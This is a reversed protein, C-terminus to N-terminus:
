KNIGKLIKAVLEDADIVSEDKADNFQMGLVTQAPKLRWKTGKDLLQMAYNVKDAAQDCGKLDPNADNLKSIQTCQEVINDVIRDQKAYGIKDMNGISLSVFSRLMNQLAILMQKMTTDKDKYM